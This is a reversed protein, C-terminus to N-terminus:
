LASSPHQHEHGLERAQRQPFLMTTLQMRQGERVISLSFPTRMPEQALTSLVDDANRVPQGAVSILVDGTRIGARAAASRPMVHAVLVGRDRPVSFFQRLDRTLGMVVIGLRSQGQVWEFSEVATDEDGGPNANNDNPSAQPQQMPAQQMPQQQQNEAQTQDEDEAQNQDQDHASQPNQYQGQQAPTQPNGGIASGCGLALCAALIETKMWKM